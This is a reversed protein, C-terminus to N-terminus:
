LFLKKWLDRKMKLYEKAKIMSPMNNSENFDNSKNCLNNDKNYSNENTKVLNHKVFHKLPSNRGRPSNKNLYLKKSKINIGKNDNRNNFNRSSNEKDSYDFYNINENRSNVIITNKNTTNATTQWSFFPTIILNSKNKTMKKNEFKKNSTSM